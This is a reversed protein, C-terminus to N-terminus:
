MEEKQLDRRVRDKPSIYVKRGIVIYYGTAFIVMFGFLLCAYNMGVASTPTTSPFLTFIFIPVLWCLAGINVFM